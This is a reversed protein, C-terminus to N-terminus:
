TCGSCMVGFTQLPLNRSFQLHNQTVSHVSPAPEATQQETLQVASSLLEECMVGRLYKAAWHCKLHCANSMLHDNNLAM